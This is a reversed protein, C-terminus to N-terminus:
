EVGQLATGLDALADDIAKDAAASLMRTSRIEQLAQTYVCVCM